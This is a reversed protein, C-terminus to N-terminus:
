RKKKKKAGTLFHVLDEAKYARYGVDVGTVATRALDIAADKYKKNWVNKTLGIVPNGGPETARKMEQIPDLLSKVDHGTVQDLLMYVAIQGAIRKAALPTAQLWNGIQNRKYTMFPMVTSLGARGLKSMDARNYIFNTMKDVLLATVDSAAAPGGQTFAKEIYRQYSPEFYSIAQKVAPWGGQAYANDFLDKGAILSTLRNLKETKEFGATLLKSLKNDHLSRTVKGLMSDPPRVNLEEIAPLEGKLVKPLLHSVSERADKSFLAQRRATTYSKVGVVAPLMVDPQILNQFQQKQSSAIRNKYFASTLEQVLESVADQPIAALDPALKDLTEKAMTKSYLEELNISPSYKFVDQMYETVQQAARDAGVLRLKMIERGADKLIPAYHKAILVERGYRAMLRTPDVEHIGPTLIDQSLKEQAFRPDLASGPSSLGPRADRRLPLYGPRYQSPSLVGLGVAEQHLADYHGRMTSLVAMDEQSPLAPYSWAHRDVSATPIFQGNEVHLLAESIQYPTWGRDTLQKQLDSFQAVLPELEQPVQNLAGAVRIPLEGVDTNTLHGIKSLIATDRSANNFVGPTFDKTLRAVKDTTLGQVELAQTLAGDALMKQKAADYGLAEALAAAKERQKMAVELGLRVANKTDGKLATYGMNKGLATVAAQKTLNDQLEQSLKFIEDSSLPNDLLKTGLEHQKATLNELSAEQPRLKAELIAEQEKLKALEELAIQQEHTSIVVKGEPIEKAVKRLNRNSAATTVGEFVSAFGTAIATNKLFSQGIEGATMDKGLTEHVTGVTGYTLGEGVARAAATKSAERSLFRTANNALISQGAEQAFPSLLERAAAIEAPGALLGLKQLASTAFKAGTGALGGALPDILTGVGRYVVDTENKPAEPTGYILPATKALEKVNQDLREKFPSDPLLAHEVALAARTGLNLLSTAGIALNKPIDKFGQANAEVNAQRQAQEEPSVPTSNSLYRPAHSPEPAATASVDQTEEFKPPVDVTDEFRPIQDAM